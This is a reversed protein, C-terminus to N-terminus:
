NAIKTLLAILIGAMEIYCTSFRCLPKLALTGQITLPKRDRIIEDSPVYFGM